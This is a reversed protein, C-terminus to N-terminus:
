THMRVSTHSLAVGRDSAGVPYVDVGRHVVLGEDQRVVVRVAARRDVGRKDLRVLRRHERQDVLHVLEHALRRAFGRRRRPRALIRQKRHPNPNIINPIAIILAPVPIRVYVQDM